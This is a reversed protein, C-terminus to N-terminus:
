RCLFSFNGFDSAAAKIVYQGQERHCFFKHRGHVISWKVGFRSFRSLRTFSLLYNGVMAILLPNLPPFPKTFCNLSRRTLLLPMDGVHSHVLTLVSLLFPDPTSLYSGATSRLM